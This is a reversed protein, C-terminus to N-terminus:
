YTYTTLNMYSPFKAYLHFTNLSILSNLNTQLYTM